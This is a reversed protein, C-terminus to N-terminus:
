QTFFGIMFAINEVLVLATLFWLTLRNKVSDGARVLWILVMFALTAGAFMGVGLLPLFAAVALLVLISRSISQPSQAQEQAM